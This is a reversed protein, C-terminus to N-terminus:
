MKQTPLYAWGLFERIFGRKTESPVGVQHEFEIETGDFTGFVRDWFTLIESFNSTPLSGDHKKHHSLHFRPIQFSKSFWNEEIEVNSHKILSIIWIFCYLFAVLTRNFGLTFLLIMEPVYLLFDDVPHTRTSTGVGLREPLHHLAHFRWLFSVEHMWRHMWYRIFDILLVLIIAQFILPMGIHFEMGSIARIHDAVWNSFPYTVAGAFFGSFFFFFIETGTEKFKFGKSDIYNWTKNRPIILELILLTIAIGNYTYEIWDSPTYNLKWLIFIVALTTLLLGPFLYKKSAIEISSRIEM